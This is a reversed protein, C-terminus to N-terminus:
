HEDPDAQRDAWSDLAEWKSDDKPDCSSLKRNRCVDVAYVPHIEWLSIRQPAAGQGNSCPKHSADFFLQGTIRVPRAGVGLLNDKTWADPRFHPTIEATVTECLDDDPNKGLSIHIDNNTAGPKNCNVSEGKSKNSNKADVVFAAVRVTRGEGLQGGFGDDILGTLASRDPPLRDRAGFVIGATEAASQLDAFQSLNLTLPAGSACFNNKARNQARHAPTDAIGERGCSKDIAHPKAIPKFPLPGCGTAFPEAYAPAALSALLVPRLLLRGLASM